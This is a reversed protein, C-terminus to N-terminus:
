KKISKSFADIDEVCEAGLKKEIIAYAAGINPARGTMNHTDSGIFHVARERLMSLARRRTLLGTFFSANVQMLIGSDYIRHWADRSQMKMYREIHALMVTIGHRGSLEALERLTYETWRCFPMELLLMNSNEICLAELGEMRSIGPYYKVEAGLLIRPGSEGLRERLQRASRARRDLFEGVSNANASFHPTACVTDVGQAALANIMCLSEEADKAGDDIYPLVHTHWDTM